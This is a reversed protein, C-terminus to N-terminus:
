VELDGDVGEIGGEVVVAYVLSPDGPGGLAVLDHESGEIMTPQAGVGYAVGRGDRYAGQLVVAREEGHHRHRPFRVGPRLVVDLTHADPMSWSEALAPVLRLNADLAVLGEYAQMLANQTQYSFGSTHPDMGQVDFDALMCLTREAPPSPTPAPASCALLGLALAAARKM